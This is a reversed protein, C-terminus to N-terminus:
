RHFTNQNSDRTGFHGGGFPNHLSTEEINSSITGVNFKLGNPNNSNLLTDQSSIGGGVRGDMTSGTVNEYSNTNAVVIM